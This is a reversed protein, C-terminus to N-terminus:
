IGYRPPEFCDVIIDSDDDDKKIQGRKMSFECNDALDEAKETDTKEKVGLAGCGTCTVVSLALLACFVWSFFDDV